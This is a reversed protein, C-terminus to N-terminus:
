CATAGLSQAQAFHAACRPETPRSQPTAPQGCPRLFRDDPSQVRKTCTLSLGHSQTLSAQEPEIWDRWPESDKGARLWRHPDKIGIGKQVMESAAYNRAAILVLPRDNPKLQRYKVRAEPKGLRKGTRKPYCEWFEDFDAEAASLTDQEQEQEQEQIPCPESKADATGDSMAHGMADGIAHRFADSRSHLYARCRTILTAKEPCEPILNLAQPWAKIVSNPGEPENYRLFKPLAIYCAKENVEIMAKSLPAQIAVRFRKLPWGLEAALGPITARMAGIATMHPHTLLFLFALKGDDTFAQFNQDNWIKTDIKRYRGM